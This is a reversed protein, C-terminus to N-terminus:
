RDPWWLGAAAQLAAWCGPGLRLGFWGVYRKAHIFVFSVDDDEDEDSSTRSSAVAVGVGRGTTAASTTSRWRV